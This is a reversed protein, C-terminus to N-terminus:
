LRILSILIFNNLGQISRPTILFLAYNDDKGIDVRKLTPNM